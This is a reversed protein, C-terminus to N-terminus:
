SRTPRSPVPPKEVAAVEGLPDAISRVLSVNVAVSPDSYQKYWYNAAAWFHEPADFEDLAGPAGEVGAASLAWRVFAAGPHPAGGVLPNPNREPEFIYPQWRAIMQWLDYRERIAKANKALELVRAVRQQPSLEGGVNQFHFAILAVNPFTKFNRYRSVKDTVIGGDEPTKPDADVVRSELIDGSAGDFLFIHSFYSPRRDFRLFSQARRVAMSAPDNGGVLGIYVTTSPDSLFQDFKFQRRTNDLDVAEIRETAGVRM